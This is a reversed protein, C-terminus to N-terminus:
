DTPRARLAEAMREFASQADATLPLNVELEPVQIRNLAERCELLEARVSEPDPVSTLREEAASLDAEANERDRLQFRAEGRRLLARGLRADDVPEKAAETALRDAHQLAEEAAGAVLLTRALSDLAIWELLDTHDFRAALLGLRANLIADENRGQGWCLLAMRHYCWVQRSWQQERLAEQLEAQDQREQEAAREAEARRREEAEAAEDPESDLSFSDSM